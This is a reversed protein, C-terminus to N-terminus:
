ERLHNEEGPQLSKDTRDSMRDGSTNWWRQETVGNQGSFSFPVNLYNTIGGWSGSSFTGGQKETEVGHLETGSGFLRGKTGKWKVPM